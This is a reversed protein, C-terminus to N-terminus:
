FHKSHASILLIHNLVFRQFHEFVAQIKLIAIYSSAPQHLSRFNTEDPFSAGLQFKRNRQRLFSILFEKTAKPENFIFYLVNWLNKVFEYTVEPSKYGPVLINSLLEPTWPELLRNTYENQLKLNFTSEAEKFM